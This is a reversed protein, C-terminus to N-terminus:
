DQVKRWSSLGDRSCAGVVFPRSSVDFTGGPALEVRPFTFSADPHLNKDQWFRIDVGTLRPATLGLYTGDPLEWAGTRWPRWLCPPIPTPQGDKPPALMDDGKAMKVGAREKPVLRFFATDVPM